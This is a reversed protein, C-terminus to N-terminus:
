YVRVTGDKNVTGSVTARSSMNMVPIVDGAAGRGLARGDALIRLGGSRYILMVRQNRDVLAPARVDGRRIPRDPYLAIGAERGIVEGPREIAGPVTANKVALDAPAIIEGPRITRTPVVVDALTASGALIMLVALAGRM